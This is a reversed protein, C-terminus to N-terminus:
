QVCNPCVPAGTMWGLYPVHFGRLVLMAGMCIIIVAAVREARSRLRATLVSSVVGLLSLAPAMGAAFVAMLLSGQLVSGTSAARAVMAYLIGCPLLPTLLGLGLVAARSRRRLLAGRIRIMLGPAPVGTLFGPLPFLGLLSIGAGIMFVGAAVAFVEGAHRFWGATMGIMGAVAGLVAYSLIRGANYALHLSVGRWPGSDAAGAPLSYALVITGCMGLCHMSALLGATFILAVDIV